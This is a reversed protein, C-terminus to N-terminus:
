SRSQGKALDRESSLLAKKRGIGMGYGGLSGDKRIVRHCPIILPVPNSGCANAVARVAKPEGVMEAVEQYSRTEGLPIRQLATWVRMQFDTGQIDLPFRAEQGRLHRQLSRLYRAATPSKALRASPFEAALAKLLECDSRGAKVSCVGYDTSALLLRGLASRGTAYGVQLGAGGKKYTAPTMGLKKRSDGYLWSQASYGTGRLARVVPEGATLKSRLVSLRFGELYERPSMGMVETFTRQLHSPSLGFRKGLSGLTVPSASNAKLYECVGKVLEAKSTATSASTVSQL